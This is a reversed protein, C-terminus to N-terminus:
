LMVKPNKFISEGSISLFYLQKGLNQYRKFIKFYEFYVYHICSTWNVAWYRVLGDAREDSWSVVHNLAIHVFRLATCFARWQHPTQGTLGTWREPYSSPTPECTGAARLRPRYDSVMSQFTARRRQNCAKSNGGSKHCKKSWKIRRHFHFECDCPDATAWIITQPRIGGSTNLKGAKPLLIPKERKHNRYKTPRM